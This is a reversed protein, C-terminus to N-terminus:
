ANRYIELRRVEVVRRRGTVSPHARMGGVIFWLAGAALVVDGLSFVKPRPYPKALVFIDALFPLRTEDHLLQHTIVTEAELPQIYSELGARVLGDASVPMKGGNAAIVVLNLLIGVGILLLAPNRRNLWIVAMLALFTGVYVVPGWEELSIWGADSAYQGGYQIVVVLLALLLGRIEVEALNALRGRVLWGLILSVVAIDLLM